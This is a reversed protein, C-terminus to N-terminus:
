VILTVKAFLRLVQYHHYYFHNLSSYFFYCYKTVATSITAYLRLMPRGSGLEVIELRLRSALVCGAVPADLLFMLSLIIVNIWQLSKESGKEVQM